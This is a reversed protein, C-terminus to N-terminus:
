CFKSFHIPVHSVYNTQHSSEMLLLSPSPPPEGPSPGLPLSILAERQGRCLASTSAAPASDGTVHVWVNANHRCPVARDGPEEKFSSSPM